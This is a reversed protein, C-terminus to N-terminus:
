GRGRKRKAGAALTFLDAPVPEKRAPRRRTVPANGGQDTGAQSNIRALLNSAPEDSIDQPVLRGEFARKLISQRLRAARKLGHDVETEAASILSWRREVERIIARQQDASPIPIELVHLKGHTLSVGSENIGAKKRDIERLIAPSNLAIELFEPVVLEERCRFRYVTDCVMLRPRTKRVFCTVGARPRPGKRTMLFDGPIIELHPRAALDEPLPKNEFDRYEMPQIATTTIVGWEDPSANSLLDCKPSWGQGIKGILNRFQYIVSEKSIPLLSGDVAAKLVAARYRKLNARVRELAAVGADLDSFLEEIKAVIRRQEALPAVPITLERVHAINLRPVGTGLRCADYQKRLVPSRMAYAAYRPLVLRKEMRLRCSSQTINAGDLHAPVIAVKGITGVISLLIDDPRLASRRYAAAIAPTTRRLDDIQIQDSQIETPRIYPVGGLTDPGPQLIGYVVPAGTELVDKLKFHAWGEPTAIM